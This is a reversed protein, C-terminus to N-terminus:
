RKTVWAVELWNDARPVVDINSRMAWPIVQRHLPILHTQSQFERLAAKVPDRRKKRDADQSSALALLELKENKARGRNCLGM